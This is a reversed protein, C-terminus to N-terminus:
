ILTLIKYVNIPFYTIKDSTTTDDATGTTSKDDFFISIRAVHDRPNCMPTFTFWSYGKIDNSSCYFPENEAIADNILTPDYSATYLKEPYGAERLFSQLKFTVTVGDDNQKYSNKMDLEIATVLNQLKEDNSAATNYLHILQPKRLLQECSLTSEARAVGVIASKLLLLLVVTSFSPVTKSGDTAQIKTM